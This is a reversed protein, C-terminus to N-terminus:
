QSSREDEVIVNIKVDDDRLIFVRGQPSKIDNKVTRAIIKIASNPFDEVTLKVLRVTGTVYDVTGAAPNIVQPNTADDTVIQINGMGDDQLFVCVGDVDFVGSKIAPKYDSFGNSEKFPYPKTLEAEFKFTPNVKVNLPPSYEIVPYAEINNSQISQDLNDIISSLKSLRLSKNFQELNDDSYSQIAARALAEIEDVSKETLKTTYYIKIDLDSYVFDTSVFIPEVSLPSRDSLFQLYENSVTTSILQTNDRLYVAIAVKGFQPPDLQDGSYASVASIEPFAQKLLIEYDSTTIAREQIQISKPAFYRISALDEREAGGYAKTITAVSISAGSIFTADFKVAGNAEAGSTIRYLVRVDEVETPQVGFVNRGFYISYKDDFYPEVYFVKDEPKIGFIGSAYTFQNQDDTQESDIFVGISDTDVTDNTIAIRLKGDDDIFYGEREFTALMQGEFIEINDTTFTGDKGTKRAIYTKNTVFSFTDGQYRTTFESYKPIVITSNTETVDTITLQVIARASKRSRPLYNLEKAHSVVSNKIQASDLFMENIAMNTYFNNQFTNYALVDLLVSLNSGDFNYDKFQTQGQLFTKLQEKIGEFDLEVIPTTPQTM